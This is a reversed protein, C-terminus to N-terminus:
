FKDNIEPMSQSSKQILVEWLQYGLPLVGITPFWLMFLIYLHYEKVAAQTVM